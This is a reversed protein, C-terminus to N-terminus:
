RRKAWEKEDDTLQEKHLYDGLVPPPTVLKPRGNDDRVTVLGVVEGNEKLAWAALQYVTSKGAVGSVNDHRFYWDTAPIIQKYSTNSM